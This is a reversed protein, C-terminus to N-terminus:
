ENKQHLWAVTHDPRGLDKLWDRAPEKGNESRYFRVPLGVPLASNDAMIM